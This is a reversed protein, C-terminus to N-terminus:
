QTEKGLEKLEDVSLGTAESIKHIDIDMKLLNRATAIRAKAEGKAEGEALGEALGQSMAHRRIDDERTIEDMRAKYELIYLVREDADLTFLRELSLAEKIPAENLMAQPMKSEEMGAFYALWRELGSKPASKFGDRYKPLELFIISIDDSLKEHTEDNRMSFSNRYSTGELLNYGMINISITPKVDKYSENRLLQSSHLVSLYYISRETYDHRDRVQIEVNVLSGDSTKAAIDLRCEKGLEIVPDLERDLLEIDSFCSNGEPFVISNVLDLLMDKREQKFFLYKIFRDSLRFIRFGSEGEIPPPTLPTGKYFLDSGM